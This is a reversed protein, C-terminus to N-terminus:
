ECGADKPCVLVQPGGLGGCVVEGGKELNYSTIPVSLISFETAEPVHLDFDIKAPRIFEIVHSTEMENLLKKGYMGPLYGEKVRLANLYKVKRPQGPRLTVEARGQLKDSTSLCSKGIVWIVKQHLNIDDPSSLSFHVTDGGQVLYESSRYHNQAPHYEHVYVTDLLEKMRRDRYIFVTNNKIKQGRLHIEEKKEFKSTVIGDKAVRINKSDLIKVGLLYGGVGITLRKARGSNNAVAVNIEDDEVWAISCVEKGEPADQVVKGMSAVPFIVLLVLVLLLMGFM